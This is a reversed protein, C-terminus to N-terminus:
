PAYGVGILAPWETALVEPTLTKVMRARYREVFAPWADGLGQRVIQLPATSRLMSTVFADATGSFPARHTVRHVGVDVFGAATLESLVEEETGLVAADAKLPFSPLEAAIGEMMALMIPSERVPPWSSIAVRGGRVLVRRLERLGAQRDPFFILGFMSFAADFAHDPLPLKQGDAVLARVNLLGRAAREMELREIMKPSFDVAVVESATEAALLSLTGPGAAVDLVRAEPALSSLRMADRAFSEFFPAVDEAYADGVLTWPQPSAMPNPPAASEPQTM